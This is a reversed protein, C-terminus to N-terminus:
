WNNNITSSTFTYGLCAVNKHEVSLNSLISIVKLLKLLLLEICQKMLYLDGNDQVFCSTAGLHIIKSEDIIFLKFIYSYAMADHRLISEQKKAYDFDINYYKFENRNSNIRYDRSCKIGNTTNSISGM